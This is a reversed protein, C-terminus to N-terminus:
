EPPEETLLAFEELASRVKLLVMGSADDRRVSFRHHKAQDSESFITVLYDGTGDETRWTFGIAAM